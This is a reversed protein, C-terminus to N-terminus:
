LASDTAIRAVCLCNAASASRALQGQRDDSAYAAKADHQHAALAFLDYAGEEAGGAAAAAAESVWAGLKLDQVCAWIFDRLAQAQVCVSRVTSDHALAGTGKRPQCVRGLPLDHAVVHLLLLPALPVTM